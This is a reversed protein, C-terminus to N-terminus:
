HSDTGQVETPPAPRDFQVPLVEAVAHLVQLGLFAADVHRGQEVKLRHTGSALAPPTTPDTPGTVGLDPAPQQPDPTGSVATHSGSGSRQRQRTM